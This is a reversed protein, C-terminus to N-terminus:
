LFPQDLYFFRARWWILTLRPFFHRQLFSFQRPFPQSFWNLLIFIALINLTLHFVTTFPVWFLQHVIHPLHLIDNVYIYLKLLIDYRGYVV